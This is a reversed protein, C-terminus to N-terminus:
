QLNVLVLVFGEKNISTMAKGIIAGRMKKRKTARMVHGPISSSTLLDGPLIRGNLDSAKVYVRGTLTIPYEGDAISGKEYMIMGSSIGQAGSIVGAIRTDYANKTITLKGAVKPDISVLCGADIKQPDDTIDFHEALDSGGRIEVEDTIVRGDGNYDGDLEIKLNNLQDFVKVSGGQDGNESAVLTIRTNETSDRLQIFGASGVNNGDILATIADYHNYLRMIGGSEIAGDASKLSMMLRDDSSKLFIGGGGGESDADFDSTGFHDSNFLVLDAGSDVTSEEARLRFHLNADSDYLFLGGGQGMANGDLRITRAELPNFLVMGSGDGIGTKSSAIFNTIGNENKLTIQGGDFENKDLHIVEANLSNDLSVQGSLKGAICSIIYSIILFNKM